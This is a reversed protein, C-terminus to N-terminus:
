GAARGLENTEVHAQQRGDASADVLVAMRLDQCSALTEGLSLLRDHSTVLIRVNCDNLIHAVQHPRLVPNIPVFVAGALSAGFFAAITEFGNTSGFASGIERPLERM